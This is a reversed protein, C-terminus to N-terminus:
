RGLLVEKREWPSILVREYRYNPASVRVYGGGFYEPLSYKNGLPGGPIALLPGIDTEKKGDWQIERFSANKIPPGAKLFGAEYVDITAM